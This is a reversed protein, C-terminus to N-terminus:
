ENLASRLVSGFPTAQERWKEPRTLEVVAGNQKKSIIEPLQCASFKARGIPFCAHAHKQLEASAREPPFAVVVRKSPYLKKIACVAPVLDSDATILLATDFRDSFADTLMEVAINVDTKKESPVQEVAGCARCSRPESQYHGWYM